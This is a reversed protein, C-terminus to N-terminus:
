KKFLSWTGSQIDLIQVILYKCRGNILSPVDLVSRSRDLKTFKSFFNVLGVDLMGDSFSNGYMCTNPLLDNNNILDTDFELGTEQANLVNIKHIDTWTKKITPEIIHEQAILRSAFRADSGLFPRSEVKFEYDWKRHSKEKDAIKDVLNKSVNFASLHTWHFDQTYFSRHGKQVDKIEGYVDIVNLKPQNLIDNYFKIFNSEKPIKPAFFPLKNDIFYEKQMPTLFYTTVGMNELTDSFLKMGNIIEARDEASSMVKETAPLENDILNRGFIYNDTGYYVRSSSGFIRYDLENKARIFFDRLGMNDNFWKDFKVYNKDVAYWPGDWKEPFEALVRMEEVKEVRSSYWDHVKEFAPFNKVLISNIRETCIFSIILPLLSLSFVIWVFILQPRFKNNSDPIKEYKESLV